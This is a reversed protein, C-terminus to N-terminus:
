LAWEYLGRGRVLAWKDQESVAQDARYMEASQMAGKGARVYPSLCERRWCCTWGFAMCAVGLLCCVSAGSPDFLGGYVNNQNIEESLRCTNSTSTFVHRLSLEACLVGVLCLM